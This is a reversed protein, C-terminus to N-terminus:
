EETAGDEEKIGHSKKYEQGARFLDEMAIMSNILGYNLNGDKALPL